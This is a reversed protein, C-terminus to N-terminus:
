NYYTDKLNSNYDDFKYYIEDKFYVFNSQSTKCIGDLYFAQGYIYFNGSPEIVNVDKIKQNDCYIGGNKYYYIENNNTYEILYSNKELEILLSSGFTNLNVKVIKTIGLHCFCEECICNENELYEYYSLFLEGNIVKAKNYLRFNEQIEIENKNQNYEVVISNKDIYISGIHKNYYFSGMGEYNINCLFDVKDDEILYLHDQADSFFTKGDINYVSNRISDNIYSDEKTLLNYKHFSSDNVYGFNYYLYNGSIIFSKIGKIAYYNELNLNEDYILLRNNTSVYLKQNFENIENVYEYVDLNLDIEDLNENKLEYVKNDIECFNKSNVSVVEKQIKIIAEHHFPGQKSWGLGSIEYLFILILVLFVSLFIRKKM